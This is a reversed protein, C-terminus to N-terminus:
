VESETLEPYGMDILLQKVESKIREPVENITKKGKIIMNAYVTAMGM